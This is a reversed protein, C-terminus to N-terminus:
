KKFLNNFISIFFSQINNLIKEFRLSFADSIKNNVSVIKNIIKKFWSFIRNDKNEINEDSAIPKVVEPMETNPTFYKESPALLPERSLDVKKEEKKIEKNNKKSSDIIKTKDVVQPYVPKHDYSGYTKPRYNVPIYDTATKFDVTGCSSDNSCNFSLYGFSQVWAYGSFVGYENIRVTNAGAGTPAFNVWGSQPGWAYGSLYGNQDVTVKYNSATCSGPVNSCNFSIWGTASGWMWGTLESDSISGNQATQIIFKGVIIEKSINNLDSNNVLYARNYGLGAPDFTGIDSSALVIVVPLFLAFFIIFTYKFM